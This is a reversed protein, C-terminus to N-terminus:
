PGAGGIRISRARPNMAPHNHPLDCNGAASGADGLVTAKQQLASCNHFVPEEQHRRQM